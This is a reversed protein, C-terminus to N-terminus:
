PSLLSLDLVESINKESSGMNSALYLQRQNICIHAGHVHTKTWTFVIHVTYALPLACGELDLFFTLVKKWSFQFNVIFDSNHTLGLTHNM